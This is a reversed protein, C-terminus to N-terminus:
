REPMKALHLLPLASRGVVRDLAFSTQVHDISRLSILEQRLFHNYDALDASVIRLLYDFSGSMAWCEMVQPLRRVAAEFEAVEDKGERTLRVEAFATVPLGLKLYDIEARYGRILGSSELQQVRRACPTASLAVKRALNAISMRADSQLEALIKLDIADLMM